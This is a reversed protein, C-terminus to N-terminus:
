PFYFVGQEMDYGYLLHGSENILSKHPDDPFCFATQRLVPADRFDVPTEQTRVEPAPTSAAPTAPHQVPVQAAAQPVLLGSTLAGGTAIAGGLFKRRNVTSMESLM